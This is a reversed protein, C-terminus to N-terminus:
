PTLSAESGPPNADDIPLGQLADPLDESGAAADSRIMHFWSEGKVPTGSAGATLLPSSAGLVVQEDEWEILGSIARGGQEVSGILRYRVRQVVYVDGHILGLLDISVTMGPHGDADQDFVRPDDPMTPLPDRAPDALVAGRVETYWDQVFSIASSGEPSDLYAIREGSVLSDVFVDPFVMALGPVGTEVEVHAYESAIAVRSGSQVIEARMVATTERRLGGLIPMESWDVFRQAEWWSGCLDIEPTPPESAANGTYGPFCLILLGAMVSVAYRSLKLYGAM